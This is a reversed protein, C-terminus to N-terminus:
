KQIRAEALAMDLKREKAQYNLVKYLEDRTQMIDLVASQDGDKRISEYVTKAAASM